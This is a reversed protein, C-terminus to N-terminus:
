LKNVAEAFVLGREEFNKFMDYSSCAPCLVVADGKQSLDKALRVAQEVTAVKHLPKIGIFAKEMIPTAAGILIVHRCVDAIVTAMPTYDGGKDKGGTILIVPHEFGTLSGVVSGVNTAKSDNYYRVGDLERVFEMRHPLSSFNRLAQECDAKSAGVLRAALLAALANESNHLGPLKLLQRSYVEPEEDPLKIMLQDGELWAGSKQKCQEKHPGQTCFLLVRAATEAALERADHQNPNGNVVAFDQPTQREFIRKKACLYEQYSSYRDLHDESTNLLLAVHAHFEEVTELQFSSVELVAIGNPSDVETGIVEAFPQGLNGGCFCPKQAAQLMAGILSTTTSKGNTGTIAVIPAKAFRASLELEGVIPVNARKAAELEPLSPVGPSLVILDANVFTELKHGGVEWTVEERLAKKAETLQSHKRNDTVTVKAGFSVCLRAAAIGSRGLGVILVRAKGLTLPTM